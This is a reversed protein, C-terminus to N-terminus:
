VAIPAKIFPHSEYNNLEVDEINLDFISEFDKINLTPLTYPERSM